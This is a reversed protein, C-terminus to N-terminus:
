GFIQAAIGYLHGNRKPMDNSNKIMVPPNSVNDFGRKTLFDIIGETGDPVDIRLKGHHSKALENILYEAIKTNPAVIPGLILNVPGLISLGYGIVRATSDKIVLAQHAQRVRATLLKRRFVGFANNDINIVEDIDIEKLEEVRFSFDGPPKLNAPKYTTCIFKHVSTVEKFGMIEYLPKGEPTAILMTSTKETVYDICMQTADKGLGQGRYEQNVIVMGISALNGEYPIIAACSVIQGEECKHGVIKGSSMVTRIEHEDYDWGISASLAILGAIDKENLITLTLTTKYKNM